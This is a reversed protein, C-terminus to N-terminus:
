DFAQRAILPTVAQNYTAVVSDGVLPALTTVELTGRSGFQASIRAIAENSAAEIINVFDYNGLMAYQAIIKAGMEELEKHVKFIRGPNNMVSKRGANTLKTLMVYLPMNLGRMM